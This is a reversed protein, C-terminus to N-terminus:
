ADHSIVYHMAGKTRRHGHISEVQCLRIAIGSAYTGHRRKVKSPASSEMIYTRPYATISTQMVSSVSAPRSMSKVNAFRASGAKGAWCVVSVHQDMCGIGAAKRSGSTKVDSCDSGIDSRLMLPTRVVRDISSRPVNVIYRSANYSHQKKHCHITATITGLVLVNRAVSRCTREHAFRRPM